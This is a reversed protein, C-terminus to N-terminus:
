IHLDLPAMPPKVNLNQLSIWYLLDKIYALSRRLKGEFTAKEDELKDVRKRLEAIEAKLPTVLALAVETIVQASEADVKVAESQNKKWSAAWAGLAGLAVGLPGVVVGVWEQTQSM